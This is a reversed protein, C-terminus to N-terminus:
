GSAIVREALVEIYMGRGKVDEVSLINYRGDSCTIILTTTIEISPIKRFRFLASATSFTARNAWKETGHRDEKYARVSALINDGTTVFGEADKVPETSIVDIFENMKGYSM